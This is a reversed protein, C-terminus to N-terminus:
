SPSCVDGLQRFLRSPVSRAEIIGNRQNQDM